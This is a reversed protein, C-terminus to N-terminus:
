KVNTHPYMLNKLVHRVKSKIIHACTSMRFLISSRICLRRADEIMGNLLIRTEDFPMDPSGRQILYRWNVILNLLASSDVEILTAEHDWEGYSLDNVIKVHKSDITVADVNRGHHRLALTHPAM